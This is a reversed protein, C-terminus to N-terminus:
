ASAAAAAALVYGARRFFVIRSRNAAAAQLGNQVGTWVRSSVEEQAGEMMTKVINDFNKTDM